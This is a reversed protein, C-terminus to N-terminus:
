LESDPSSSEGYLKTRGKPYYRTHQCFYHCEKGAQLKNLREVEHEAEEVTPLVEKITIASDGSAFEDVRVVAFVPIREDM